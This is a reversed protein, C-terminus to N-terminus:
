RAGKIQHELRLFEREIDIYRKVLRARYLIRGVRWKLRLGRLQEKPRGTRAM